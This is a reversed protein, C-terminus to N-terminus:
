FIRLNALANEVFLLTYLTQMSLRFNSSKQEKGFAFQEILFPKQGKRKRKM